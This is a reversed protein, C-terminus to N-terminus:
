DDRALADELARDIQRTEELIPRSREYVRRATAIRRNRKRHDREAIRERLDHESRTDTEVIFSM